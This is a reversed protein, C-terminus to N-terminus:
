QSLRRRLQAAVDDVHERMAVSARNVDGDAVANVVARHQRLRERPDSPALVPRIQYVTIRSRLEDLLREVTQNDAIRVIARHLTQNSETYALPDVEFDAEMKDLITELMRIDGPTARAAAERAALCELEVRVAYIEAAEKEHIRRVRAGRNPLREILQEQALRIIAARITARKVDLSDALEGEILRESPLLKGTTIALRIRQYAAEESLAPARAATRKHTPSM